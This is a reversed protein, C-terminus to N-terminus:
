NSFNITISLPFSLSTSFVDSNFNVWGSLMPSILARKTSIERTNEVKKKGKEIRSWITCLIKNLKDMDKNCFKFTNGEGYAWHSFNAHIDLQYRPMLELAGLAKELTTIGNRIADVIDRVRERRVGFGDCLAGLTQMIIRGFFVLLSGEVWDWISDWRAHWAHIKWPILEFFPFFRM